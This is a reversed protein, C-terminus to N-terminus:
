GKAFEQLLSDKEVVWVAKLALDKKKIDCLGIGGDSKNACLMRYPIKPKKGNWVFEVIMREIEEVLHGPLIPLVALRHSFLSVVLSNIVTVKGILSLGEFNGYM